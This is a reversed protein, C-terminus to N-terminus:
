KLANNVKQKMFFKDVEDVIREPEMTKLLYGEPKLDMVKMISKIYFVGLGSYFLGYIVLAYIVEEKESMQFLEVPVVLLPIAIGNLFGSIPILEFFGRLKHKKRPIVINLGILIITCITAVDKGAILCAVFVILASVM